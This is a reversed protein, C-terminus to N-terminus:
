SSSDHPAPTRRSFGFLVAAVLVLAVVGLWALGWGSPQARAGNSGAPVRPAPVTDESGRARAPPPLSGAVGAAPAAAAGIEGEPRAGPDLRRLAARALQAGDVDLLAVLQDEPRGPAVTRYRNLSARFVANPALEVLARTVRRPNSGPGPTHALERWAALANERDGRRWRSWAAGYRGDDALPEGGDAVATFATVAGDYDQSWYRGYAAGLRAGSRLVPEVRSDEAIAELAAAAREGQGDLADLMDLLLVALERSDPGAAVHKYFTRATARDGRSLAIWGLGLEAWAPWPREPGRTVLDALVVSARDVRGARLLADAIPLLFPAPVRALDGDGMELLAARNKEPDRRYASVAALLAPDPPAAPVTLSAEDAAVARVPAVVLLVAVATRAGVRRLADVTGM